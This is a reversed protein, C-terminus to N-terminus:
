FGISLTQGVHLEGGDLRKEHALVVGESGGDSRETGIQDMCLSSGREIGGEEVSIQHILHVERNGWVEDSTRTLAYHVRATGLHQLPHFQYL